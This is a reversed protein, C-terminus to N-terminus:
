ADDDNEPEPHPESFTMAEHNQDYLHSIAEPPPRTEYELELHIVTRRRRCRGHRVRIEKPDLDKRDEPMEKPLYCPVSLKVKARQHGFPTHHAQFPKGTRIRRRGSVQAEHIEPQGDDGFQDRFAEAARQAMAHEADQFYFGIGRILDRLNM